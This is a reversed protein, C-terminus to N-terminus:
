GRAAPPSVGGRSAPLREMHIYAGGMAEGCKTFGLREYFRRAQPNYFFVTHRLPLGAGESEEILRGLLIKGVGRNQFRPLLAIDLLRIQEATRAV